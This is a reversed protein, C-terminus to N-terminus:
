CRWMGTQSPNMSCLSSWHCSCGGTPYRCRQGSTCRCRSRRGPVGWCGATGRPVTGGPVSLRPLSDAPRCGWGEAKLGEAAAWEAERSGTGGLPGGSARRDAGRHAPPSRRRRSRKRWRWTGTGSLAPGSGRWRTGGSCGFPACPWPPPPTRRLQKSALTGTRGSRVVETPTQHRGAATDPATGPWGRIRRSWSWWQPGRTRKAMHLGPTLLSKTCVCIQLRVM